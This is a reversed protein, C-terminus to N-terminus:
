EGRGGSGRWLEEQGGGGGSGRCLELQLELELQVKQEESRSVTFAIIVGPRSGRAVTCSHLLVHSSCLANRTGEGVSAQGGAPACQECM